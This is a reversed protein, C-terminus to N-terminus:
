RWIEQYNLSDFSSQSIMLHICVNQKSTQELKIKLEEIIKQLSSFEKTKELKLAELEENLRSM